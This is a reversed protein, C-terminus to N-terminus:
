FLGGRFVQLDIGERGMWDTFRIRLRRGATLSHEWDTVNAPGTGGDSEPRGVTRGSLDPPSACAQLAGLLGAIAGITLRRTVLPSFMSASASRSTVRIQALRAARGLNLNKVKIQM